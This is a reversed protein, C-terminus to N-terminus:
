APIPCPAEDLVDRLTSLLTEPVFPKQVLRAEDNFVFGVQAMSPDYGSCFVVKMAPDLEKIRQFAERGGMRPMVVDLLALSIENAHQQFLRVAEEGDVAIITQYGARQLVLVALRRVLPDDEAILITEHGGRVERAPAAAPAPTAHDTTPLYVRFTTGVGLESYVRIAGGHQRVMGYVMALGLGTGKGVGKTTFFPDFIHDRVDASMGSGTDAVVFM